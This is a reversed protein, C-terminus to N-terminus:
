KMAYTILCSQAHRFATAYLQPYILPNISTAKYVSKGDFLTCNLRTWDVVNSSPTPLMLEPVVNTDLIIM